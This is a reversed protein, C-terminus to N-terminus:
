ETVYYEYAGIDPIGTTPNPRVNGNLDITIGIDTAADIADSDEGLNLDNDRPAIFDPTTNSSEAIICNNYQVLAIDNGDFPYLPENRLQNSYDILKILCNNFKCDFSVETDAQREMSLAYNGSGYIICNDFTADMDSLYLVDDIVQYDNLAVPVQNFSNFYNAFTCHKFNYTGGLTCALSAEGSNNMALNTGSLTAGRALIGFNTCNYLQSNDITLKPVTEDFLRDMLIGVTANKLTLNNITNEQGSLLFIGNWQGSIDSFEPELRDGEFVVENEMEETASQTGNIILTGSDDVILGSKAHFHVRAGADVTLTSGNPVLAYGYIVYPKENTWNLEQPTALEHGQIDSPAGSITLTEKMDTPLARDPKIFVADQVLTVLEVKQYNNGNDFEIKDTYLFNTNENTYETYDITTEIFVYMSDKALLEINNFVRGPLGDVMLRYKSQEGEGLRISPISIDKDSHNYVKLTYTSSGINTFVTDLYVTDRSFGLNGTSPEFEFDNRCSTLLLVFGAIFLLLCNRM